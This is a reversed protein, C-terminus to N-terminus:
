KEDVAPPFPPEKLLRLILTPIAQLIIEYGLQAFSLAVAAYLVWIGVYYQAAALAACLIVAVIAWVWTPAKKFIGKLWQVDGVIAVAILIIVTWPISLNDM